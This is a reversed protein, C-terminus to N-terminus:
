EGGPPTEGLLHWGAQTLTFGNRNGNILRKEKLARVADKCSSPKVYEPDEEDKTKNLRSHIIGHRLQTPDLKQEAACIINLIARHLPSLSGDSRGPVATSPSNKPAVDQLGAATDILEPSARPARHGPLLTEVLRLQRRDVIAFCDLCDADDADAEVVGRIPSGSSPDLGSIPVYVRIARAGLASLRQKLEEPRGQFKAERRNRCAPTPLLRGSKPFRRAFRREREKNAQLSWKEADALAEEIEDPRGSLLFKAVERGRSEWGKQIEVLASRAELPMLAVPPDHTYTAGGFPNCKVYANVLEANLAGDGAAIMFSEALGLLTQTVDDYGDTCHQLLAVLLERALECNRRWLEGALWYMPQKWDVWPSGDDIESGWLDWNVQWCHAVFTAVINNEPQSALCRGALYEGLPKNTFQFGHAATGFFFGSRRSLDSLIEEGSTFGFADRVAGASEKRILIRNLAEGYSIGGHHNLAALAIDGLLEICAEPKQMERRQLLEYSAQNMLGAPSKSLEVPGSQHMICTLALFLPRRILEQIGGCAERVAKILRQSQGATLVHNIYCDIERPTLLEPQFRDRRAFINAIPASLASPRSALVLSCTKLSGEGLAIPMMQELRRVAGEAEDVGDLLLVLRGAKALSMFFAEGDATESFASQWEFLIKLLPAYVPKHTGTERGPFEVYKLNVFIPVRLAADDANDAGMGKALEYALWRMVETKGIGGEGTVLIRTGHDVLLRELLRNEATPMPRRNTGRQLDPRVKDAISRSEREAREQEEDKLQRAIRSSQDLTQDKQGLVLIQGYGDLYNKRHTRLIEVRPDFFGRM